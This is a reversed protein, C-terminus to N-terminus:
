IVDAAYSGIGNSADQVSPDVLNSQKLYVTNQRSQLLLNGLSIILDFAKSM